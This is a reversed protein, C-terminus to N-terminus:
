FVTEYLKFMGLAYCGEEKGSSGRAVEVTMMWAKERYQQSEFNM